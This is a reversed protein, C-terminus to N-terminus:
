KKHTLIKLEYGYTSKQFDYNHPERLEVVLSYYSKHSGLRLEHFPAIDFTERKTAFDVKHKFNIIIIKPNDAVFVKMLEDKTEIRMINESLIIRLHRFNVIQSPFANQSEEANFTIEIEEEEILAVSSVSVSSSIASESSSSQDEIVIVDPQSEESQTITSHTMAPFFPNERANLATLSIVFIFFITKM